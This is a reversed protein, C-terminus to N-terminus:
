VVELRVVPIRLCHTIVGGKIVEVWELPVRECVVRGTWRLMVDSRRPFTQRIHPRTPRPTPPGDEGPRCGYHQLRVWQGHRIRRDAYKVYPVVLDVEGCVRDRRPRALHARRVDERACRVVSIGCETLCRHPHLTRSPLTRCAIM